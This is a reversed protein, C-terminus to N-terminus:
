YSTNKKCFYRHALLYSRRILDLGTIYPSIFNELRKNDTYELYIYLTTKTLKFILSLRRPLSFNQSRSEYLHIIVLLGSAAYVVLKWRPSGKKESRDPHYKEKWMMLRSGQKCLSIIKIWTKVSIEQSYAQGLVAAADALVGLIFFPGQIESIKRFISPYPNSRPFVFIYCKRGLRLTSLPANFSKIFRLSAEIRALM